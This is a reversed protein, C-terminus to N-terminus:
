FGFMGPGLGTRFIIENYARPSPHLGEITWPGVLNIMPPASYGSGGNTVTWTIAQGSGNTTCTGVAGSGTEGPYPSSTWPIVTANPYGAGVSAGTSFLSTAVATVVGGVVTAFAAANAGSASVSAGPDCVWKGVDTPDVVHAADLIGSLGFSIGNALLWANFLQRNAENPASLVTQNALTLFADTSTSRPTLTWGYCKLGRNLFPAMIKQWNSSLTAFSMGSNIDNVGLEMIMHTISDRLVLHAGENRQLYFLTSYGGVGTDIGPMKNRLSRIISRSNTVPDTQDNTGGSISDGVIGLVPIRTQTRAQVIPSFGQGATTSATNTLDLTHDALDIGRTTWEAGAGLLSSQNGSFWFTGTWTVFTRISYRAGAAIGVAIPDSFVLTRGPVITISPNGGFWIQRPTAGIPYEISATVTYGNPLSTEAGGGTVIGWGAFALRIDSLATNLPATILSRTNASNNTSDAANTTIAIVQPNNNSVCMFSSTKYALDKPFVQAPPTIVAARAGGLAAYAAVAASGSLLKRRNM